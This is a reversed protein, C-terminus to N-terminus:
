TNKTGFYQELYSNAQNRYNNAALQPAFLLGLREELSLDGLRQATLNIAQQAGMRGAEQLGEGVKQVGTLGLTMAGGTPTAYMWAKDIPGMPLVAYNLVKGPLSKSGLWDVDLVDAVEPVVPAFFSGTLGYGTYKSLAKAKSLSGTYRRFNKLADRNIKNGLAEADLYGRGLFNRLRSNPINEWGIIKGYKDHIFGGPVGKAGKSGFTSILPRGVWKLWPKALWDYSTKLYAQGLGKLLYRM